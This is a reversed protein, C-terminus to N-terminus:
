ELWETEFSGAEHIDITELPGPGLNEFKHPVGAPVVLIHGAAAEIEEGGVTFLARGSRIVFTEAYPHRHLRPGGGPREIRNAIVCIGAGHVGGQWEGEFRGTDPLWDEPPIISTM